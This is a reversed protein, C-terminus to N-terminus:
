RLFSPASSSLPGASEGGPPTGRRRVLAYITILFIVVGLVLLVPSPLEGDARAPQASASPLVFLAVDTRKPLQGATLHVQASRYTYNNNAERPPSM